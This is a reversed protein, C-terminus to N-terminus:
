ENNGGKELQEANKLKSIAEEKLELISCNEIVSKFTAKANFFDKQIVAIDGLLIYSRTIWYEYSGSNEISEIAFKEANALDGNQFSTYGLQYRAEAGLASKNLQVVSNFSAHASVLQKEKLFSYGLLMYAYALDDNNSGPTELMKQAADKGEEWLKVNFYSRVEGRRSELIIEPKSAISSLQKFVRLSSQYDKLEFYYIKGSQRLAKELYKSVGKSALQEYTQAAPLFSKQQQLYEAKYNLVEAIFLGNPFNSIYQELSPLNQAILGDAHIKQIFQYSLSDKQVQGLNIGSSKLFTEYEDIKGTEVYLSKANEIAEAAQESAPYEKLLKQFQASSQEFKDLNYYAIGLKLISEAILEDDKEVLSPIRMLYPIAMEFEEESMYTDALESAILPIYPSNPFRKEASRLLNIKAAPSKIGEIIAIQFIAYDSGFQNANLVSSYLNKAKEIKKEMFACDATRLKAELKLEADSSSTASFIKEFWIEAKSYDELEFYSYGLNYWANEIKAEGITKIHLKTYENLFKICDNYEQKRFSLEGRWFLSPAYFDSNKFSALKLFMQDSQDLQMDNMLEVARGFYIRPTVSKLLGSSSPLKEILLIAQRYNNTKAYYSILIEICENSYISNPNEQLYKNLGQLGLDEYGLELSLKSFYFRSISERSKDIKSGLVYQFANRANSKDNVQLYCSALLYMSEHSLKDNGASLPKLQEIAKSYKKIHYYSSGLEFRQSPNLTIGSSFLSEYLAVTKVHEEQNFYLSALLQRVENLHIGDGLKLYKEGYEIALRANGNENAIYAQYFPVAKSYNPHNEIEKFWKVADVYKRESFDIFGLYYQVDPKFESQDLQLISRFFPRANDFKNLSFYGVGKEFQVRENEENNLYVPDTKELLSIAEDFMSLSFYYHGLHYALKVSVYKNETSEMLSKGERVSYIEKTIIGSVLKMLEIESKESDTLNSNIEWDGTHSLILANASTFQGSYFLDRAKKIFLSSSSLNQTAQARVHLSCLYCVFFFVFQFVITKFKM